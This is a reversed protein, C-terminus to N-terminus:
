VLLLPIQGTVKKLINPSGDEVGVDRRLGADQMKERNSFNCKLMQLKM